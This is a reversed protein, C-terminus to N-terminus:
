PEGTADSLDEVGVGHAALVGKLRARHLELMDWLRKCPDCRVADM